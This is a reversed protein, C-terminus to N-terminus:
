AAKKKADAKGKIRITGGDFQCVLDVAKGERLSRAVAANERGFAMATREMNPRGKRQILAKPMKSYRVGKATNGKVIEGPTVTAIFTASAVPKKSQPM